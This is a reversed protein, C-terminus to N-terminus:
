NKQAFSFVVGGLFNFGFSPYQNWRQLNQGLINNFQAWLKVNRVVKFELGASLDTAGPLDTRGGKGFSQPGDFMYFTTHAYLDRLVQLRITTNFELPLLGWARANVRTTYQNFQLNSLISFKEGVTFGFEGGFNLVKMEPENVVIFSKGSVTDNQFLPQNTVKNYAVKAGYSLHDGASGKFGAYREEISSHQITGPAWIWPNFNALYQFGTNRLYGIWGAQFSFRKDNTNFEAFVNPLMKFAGSNWAPRIGANIFLPGTKYLVSPALTIFNASIDAKGEPKYRTLNVEAAVNAEFRTGISKKLPLYLYTNSESNSLQDNFVEVRVEPAYSIGLDSEQTNRFSLRGRWTQFRNQLSDESFLLTRPLFGYRNYRDQEGGFRASWEHNPTAKYYGSVDVKTHMVEQFPINGRSSYHNAYVNLGMNRGDGLTVGAELFPTRLSGYGAKVYSDNNWKGGSDIALALPKLTGPQFAFALNQNPITYQLRPRTTDPAPPAANINIKAAEKLTPKFSSTINVDRRRSTDQAGAVLTLLLVGALLGQGKRAPGAGTRRNTRKM